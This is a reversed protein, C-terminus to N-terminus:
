IFIMIISLCIGIAFAIGGIIKNSREVYKRKIFETYDGVNYEMQENVLTIATIKRKPKVEIGNSLLAYTINNKSSINVEKIFDIPFRNNPNEERIIEKFLEIERRNQSVSITIEKNESKEYIKLVNGAYPYILFLNMSNLYGNAICYGAIAVFVGVISFIKKKSPKKM